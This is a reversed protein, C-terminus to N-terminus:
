LLRRQFCWQWFISYRLLIFAYYIFLPSHITAYTTQQLPTMHQRYWSPFPNIFSLVDPPKIEFLHFYIKDYLHSLIIYYILKTIFSLQWLFGHHKVGNKVKNWNPWPSLESICSGKTFLGTCPKSIHRAWSWEARVVALGLWDWAHVVLHCFPLPNWSSQVPTCALRSRHQQM